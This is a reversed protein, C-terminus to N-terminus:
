ACYEIHLNSILERLTSATPEKEEKVARDAHWQVVKQFYDEQTKPKGFDEYLERVYREILLWDFPGAKTEWHKKTELATLLSKTDVSCYFADGNKLDNYGISSAVVNFKLTEDLRMRDGLEFGQMRHDYYTLLIEKRKIFRLLHREVKIRRFENGQKRAQLGKPTNKGLPEILSLAKQAKKEWPYPDENRPRVYETWNWGVPYYCLGILNACSRLNLSWHEDSADIIEAWLKRFKKKTAFAADKEKGTDGDEKGM